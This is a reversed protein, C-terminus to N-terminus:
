WHNNEVMIAVPRTKSYDKTATEGTLPNVLPADPTPEPTATPEPTP